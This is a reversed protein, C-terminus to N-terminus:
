SFVVVCSEGCDDNMILFKEIRNSASDVVYLNGYTDFSLAYPAALLTSNFISPNNCSAVCQYGNPGWGIIRKLDHEAVFLHGDADLIVGNPCRLTTFQTSGSGMLTTGNSQGSVFFQIRRNLCDAVYLNLKTDVFIGRPNDLM